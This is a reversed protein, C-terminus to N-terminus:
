SLRELALFTKEGEATTVTLTLWAVPEGPVYEYARLSQPLTVTGDRRVRLPRAKSTVPQFVARLGARLSM